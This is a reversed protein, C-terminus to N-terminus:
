KKKQQKQIDRDLYIDTLSKYRKYEEEDLTDVYRDILMEVVELQSDGYGLVTLAAVANRAHNDVRLNAPTTVYTYEEKVREEKKNLEDRKVQSQVEVKAGRDLKNERKKNRDHNLLDM